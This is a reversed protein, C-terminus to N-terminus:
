LKATNDKSNFFSITKSFKSAVKLFQPCSCMPNGSCDVYYVKQLEGFVRLEQEDAIQNGSIIVLSLTRICALPLMSTIKNWSLDM